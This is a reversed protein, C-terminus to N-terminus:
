KKSISRLSKKYLAEYQDAIVEIDFQKVYNAAWKQWVKRLDNDELLLQMREAYAQPDNCDVLSLRGTEKLTWRYGENAHAVIPAGMAMAEALVIGFSEGYLAPSTYIGCTAMFTHKEDETLRGIFAIDKIENAEVYQELSSKLPGDGAIVLRTSPRTRKLVEYAKIAQLAGKRKELRGMFFITNQDRNRKKAKFRKLEICNPIYHIPQEIYEAIFGTAAPSVATVVDVHPMVARAYTKYTSILSKGITNGPLAAHFTGVRLTMGEARTLLQRATVPVLPEHVHMIDFGQKLIEEIRDAHPSMSLDASTASTTKVRASAGLFIVGEPAEHAYVKRPRPTIVTVTHGRKRLAAVQLVVHSNVGGFEFINYPTFVAIKM